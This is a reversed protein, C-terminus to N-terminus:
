KLIYSLKKQDAKSPLFLILELVETDYYFYVKIQKNGILAIQLNKFHPVKPYIVLNEKVNNLFNDFESEFVDLEKQTWNYKLFDVVEALSSIADDSYIIRM